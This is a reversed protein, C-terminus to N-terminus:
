TLKSSFRKYRISYSCLELRFHPRHRTQENMKDLGTFSKICIGLSDM